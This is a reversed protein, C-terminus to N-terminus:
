LARTLGKHPGLGLREWMASFGLRSRSTPSIRGSVTELGLSCDRCLSEAAWLTEWDRGNRGSRIWQM